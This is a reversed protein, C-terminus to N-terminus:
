AIIMCYFVFGGRRDIWLPPLVTATGSENESSARLLPRIGRPMAGPAGPRVNAARRAPGKWGTFGREQARRIRNSKGNEACLIRNYSMFIM